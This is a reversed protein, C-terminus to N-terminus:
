LIGTGFRTRMYIECKSDTPQPFPAVSVAKELAAPNDLGRRMDFEVAEGVSSVRRARTAATSWLATANASYFADHSGHTRKAASGNGGNDSDGRLDACQSESVRTVRQATVNTFPVGAEQYRRREADVADRVRTNHRQVRADRVALAKGQQSVYALAHRHWSEALLANSRRVDDRMAVSMRVIKPAARALVSLTNHVVNATPATKHLPRLPPAVEGASTALAVAKAATTGRTLERLKRALAMRAAEDAAATMAAADAIKRRRSIEAPGENLAALLAAQLGSGEGVVDMVLSTPSQGVNNRAHVDAGAAALYSVMSVDRRFTALHLATMGYVNAANIPQHADEILYRLRRLDGSAACVLASRDDLRAAIAASRQKRTAAGVKGSALATSARDSELKAAALASHGACDRRSHDAGHALLLEVAPLSGSRVALMLPTTGDRTTCNINPLMPILQPTLRTSAGGKRTSAATSRQQSATVSGGSQSASSAPRRSNNRSSTVRGSLTADTSINRYWPHPTYEVDYGRTLVRELAAVDGVRALGLLYEEGQRRAHRVAERMEHRQLAAFSLAAGGGASRSQRSRPSKFLTAHSHPLPTYDSSNRAAGAVPHPLVRALAVPDDGTLSMGHVRKNTAGIDVFSVPPRKGDTVFSFGDSGGTVAELDAVLSEYYLPPLEVTMQIDEDHYESCLVRGWKSAVLTAPIMFDRPVTLRGVVLGYGGRAPPPKDGAVHASSGATEQQLARTIAGRQQLLDGQLRAMVALTTSGGDLPGAPFALPDPRVECDDADVDTNAPATAVHTRFLSFRSLLEAATPGTYLQGALATRQGFSGADSQVSLCDALPSPPVTPPPGKAHVAVFGHECLDAFLGYSRDDLTQGTSVGAVVGLQDTQPKKVLATTNPPPLASKLATPVGRYGSRPRPLGTTLCRRSFASEYPAAPMAQVRSGIM